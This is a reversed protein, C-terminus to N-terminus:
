LSSSINNLRDKIASRLENFQVSGIQNLEESKIDLYGYADIVGLDEPSASCSAGCCGKGCGAGCNGSAAQENFKVLFAELHNVPIEKTIAEAVRDIKEFDPM